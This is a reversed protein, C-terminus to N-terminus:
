DEFAAGTNTIVFDIAIFEIARAPKLFIKAYMINRDVLDPTTTSSDLVVAFDSLGFGLKVSELFPKVESVFRLWTSQVNQDFLLNNAIRSIRKKVFIMLRRVNIRDLASPTVQLTKQGFVVIGEAPFSAIPNINAEYLDDRDSSSLKETVNLVPLGASGETLGGRNFGAPAFWVASSKETNAFVGLAIVSPPVWVSKDNIEDYVMVWPYYTCGYSSNIGREEFASVVSSLTGVRGKFTTKREEHPPIYVDPLDIVALADGRAECTDIIKKTLPAKTLGPMTMLNCEIVEPDAVLDIAREVSAVAYNERATQTGLVKNAFPDQKTVDVGDFGGYFPATFRDYGEELVKRWSSNVATLSRGSRRSGSVYYVADKQNGATGKVLDDLTFYFSPATVQAAPPKGSTFQEAKLTQPLTRLHDIVGDDFRTGSVTRTTRFGFYADTPDSLSGASASIRLDLKPYDVTVLANHPTFIDVKNSSGSSLTLWVIDPYKAHVSSLNWKAAANTSDDVAPRIKAKLQKRTEPGYFGYPLLTPDLAGQDLNQDVEVRMYRSMNPYSGYIRNRKKIADYEVYTDGIKRAIYNSSQPNLNCNAFKEVVAPVGDTDRIDRIVVTFTGYQNVSNANAAKIDQISIKFRKQLSEGYGLGHFKFLKQMGTPDYANRESAVQSIQQSFFWGTRSDKNEFEFDASTNSTESGRLEAVAVVYEDVSSPNGDIISENIYTEFTEGLWYKEVDDSGATDSNLLTPNTNFVKRIFKDSNKNFNFSVTSGDLDVGGAFAATTADDDATGNVLNQAGGGTASLTQRLNSDDTISVTKGVVQGSNVLEVLEATTIKTDPSSDPTITITTAARTGGFVVKPGNPTNDAAATTTIAVTRGNDGTGFQNSTFTIDNTLQTTVNSAKKPENEAIQIRFEADTGTAVSNVFVGDFSATTHPIAPNRAHVSGSARISFEPFAGNAYFIGAVAADITLDASAFTKTGGTKGILLAYSKTTKYGAEGSSAIATPDQVGLLRVFNVPGSNRLYAQAAYAAYSPALLGNGERWVDNGKSGAIPNGFIEVFEAMSELRVPRLAPGQSARGFVIPGVAAAERPLQSNDIENLFVGPSVFKFKKSSM